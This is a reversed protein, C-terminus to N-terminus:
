RRSTALCAFTDAIVRASTRTPKPTAKARNSRSALFREIAESSIIWRPKKNRGVSLDSADLAGTAILERVHDATCRLFEAWESPTKYEKDPETM